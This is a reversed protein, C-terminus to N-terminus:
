LYAVGPIFTPLLWYIAIKISPEKILQLKAASDRIPFEHNPVGWSNTGLYNSAITSPGRRCAVYIVYTTADFRSGIRVQMRLMTVNLSQLYPTNMGIM